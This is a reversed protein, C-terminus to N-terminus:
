SVQVSTLHEACCSVSNSVKQQQRQEEEAVRAREKLDEMAGTLTSVRVELGAARVEVVKMQQELEAKQGTLVTVEHLWVVGDAQMSKVKEQREANEGELVQVRGQLGTVDDQM